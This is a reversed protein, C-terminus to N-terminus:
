KWPQLSGIAEKKGSGARKMAALKCLAMLQDTDGHCMVTPLYREKIPTDGLLFWFM